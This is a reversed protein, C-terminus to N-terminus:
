HHGGRDAYRRRVTRTRTEKQEGSLDLADSQSLTQLRAELTAVEHNTPSDVLWFPVRHEDSARQYMTGHTYIIVSFRDGGPTTEHRRIHPPGVRHRMDGGLFLYVDRPATEIIVDSDPIEVHCSQFAGICLVACLSDKVNKGDFHYHQARKREGAKYQIHLVELTTGVVGTIYEPRVTDYLQELDTPSFANYLARLRTSLTDLLTFLRKQNDLDTAARRPVDAHDKHFGYCTKKKDDIDRCTQYLQTHEGESLFRKV